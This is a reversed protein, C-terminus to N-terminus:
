KPKQKTTAAIWERESRITSKIKNSGTTKQVNLKPKTAEYTVKEYPVRTKLACQGRESIMASKRKWNRWTIILNASLKEENVDLYFSYHTGCTSGASWMKSSSVWQMSIAHKGKLLVRAEILNLVGSSWIIISISLHCSTSAIDLSFENIFQLPFDTNAGGGGGRGREWGFQFTEM